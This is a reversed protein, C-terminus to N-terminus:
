EWQFFDWQNQVEESDAYAVQINERMTQTVDPHVGYGLDIVEFLEIAFFHEYLSPDGFLDDASLDHTSTMKHRPPTDSRTGTQCYWGVPYLVGHTAQPDRPSGRVLEIDTSSRVQWGLGCPAKFATAATAGMSSLGVCVEGLANRDLKTTLTYPEM